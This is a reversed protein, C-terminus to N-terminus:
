GKYRGGTDVILALESLHSSLITKRSPTLDTRVERQNEKKRQSIIEANTIHKYWVRVRPRKIMEILNKVFDYFNRGNIKIFGFVVLAIVTLIAVLMFSMRDLLKNAVFVIVGGIIIMVFQRTTIPGIIKDEVDIFQPAVFREM